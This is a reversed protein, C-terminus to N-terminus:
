EKNTTSSLHNFDMEEVSENGWANVTLSPEIIYNEGIRHLTLNFRYRYGSLLTLGSVSYYIDHDQYNLKVLKGDDVAQPPVIAAGCNSFDSTIVTELKVEPRLNKETSVAELRAARGDLTTLDTDYDKLKGVKLKVQNNLGVLSVTVKTGAGSLLEAATIGNGAKIAVEIKSLMHQFPLAVATARPTVSNLIAVALDSVMLNTDDTQDPEVTHTLMGTPYDTDEAVADGFNGHLAYFNLANYAPFLQTKNYKFKTVDIPDVTLQWAPFYTKIQDEPLEEGEDIMDAWVYVVQGSGFQSYNGNGRTIDGEAAFSNEFRIPLRNDQQPSDAEDSSCAQLAMLATCAAIM